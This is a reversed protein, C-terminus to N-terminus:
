TCGIGTPKTLRTLNLTGSGYGAVTSAYDIRLQNCGTYTLTFTGWPDLRVAAANFQTGFRTTGAPYVMQATITDGSITAAGSLIWMQKGQPDTGYFILVVRGDPLHQVIVGEGSRAPNHFSGSRAVRPGVEGACGIVASLRTSRTTIDSYGTTPNAVFSMNGPRATASCDAFVFSVGGVVRRRVQAPNFAAGFASGSADTMEDVVVSNGVVKGAGVFWAAGGNPGYTFTSVVAVGGDLIEITSGEGSRSPDFVAMTHGPVLNPGAQVEYNGSDCAYVGNNDNDQPRGLGRADRYGCPLLNGASTALLASRGREIAPSNAALAFVGDASQTGFKVDTNALDTSHNLACTADDAINAGLSRLAGSGFDACLAKNAGRPGAPDIQLVNGHLQTPQSTTHVGDQIEDFHVITNHILVLQGVPSEIIEQQCGRGLLNNSRLVLGGGNVNIVGGANGACNERFHAIGIQGVRQSEASVAGGANGAENNIFDGSIVYFDSNGRTAIAGGNGTATNNSFTTQYASFKGGSVLVAGGDGNANFGDIRTGSLHLEGGTVTIARYGVNSANIVGGSITVTGSTITPLPGTLTYTGTLQIIVDHTPDLNASTIAAVLGAVDGEPLVVLDARATGVHALLALAAVLRIAIHM